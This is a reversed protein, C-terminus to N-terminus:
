PAIAITTWSVVHLCEQEDKWARHRDLGVAKDTLSLEVSSKQNHKALENDM